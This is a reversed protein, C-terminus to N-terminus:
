QTDDNHENCGEKPPRVSAKLRYIPCGLASFKKEYETMINEPDGPNHLDLSVESLIWGDLSFQNISFEFLERNDTKFVIDGDTKLLTKYVALFNVHTLRRKAWKKRNPWPDCFNIYLRTIEGPEFFEALAEVDERVFLLNAGAATSKRLARALVISQRELGIFNVDPNRVASATIFGGKGCGIELHIDNDNGFRTAWCGKHERPNEILRTNLTLESETWKKKRMRM